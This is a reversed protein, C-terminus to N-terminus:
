DENKYVYKISAGASQSVKNGGKFEIWQGGYSNEDKLNQSTKADKKYVGYIISTLSEGYTVAKVEENPAIVSVEPLLKSIQEAISNEGKGTECSLLVISLCSKDETVNWLESNNKIYDVFGQADIGDNMQEVPYMREQDGHAIYFIQNQKPNDQFNLAAAYLNRQENNQSKPDMKNIVEKGNPDVNKLPNWNCYAYSSIHPYEDSKKDPSLWIGLLSLYYRAGFYDYGTETDREKGTFKYREDYTSSQQNVWLEGYPMYHIYQVAQGQSNTIWNSSGLHDSHYFYIGSSNGLITERKYGNFVSSLMDEGHVGRISSIYPGYSVIPLNTGDTRIYQYDGEMDQYQSETVSVTNLWLTDARDIVNDASVFTGSQNWYDGLRSAIRQSGNYYHKTYGRPTVVMYPNVYLVVDDFYARYSPYGANHQEETMTGTLKYTRNGQADYAYYGCHANGFAAVLQGAENWVHRRFEDKHPLGIHTVQGNMDWRLLMIDEANSSYVMRPRHDYFQSPYGQTYGFIMNAGIETCSKTAVLGSPSYSMSYDYGGLPTSSQVARTLRYQDDYTYTVSYKGGLNGAKNKDQVINTINGVPDYTYTIDQLAINSGNLQRRIPRHHVNEYSLVTTLGNGYAISIPADYENYEMSRIYPITASGDVSRLLGNSYHYNVVEGDPYVIRRMRGFSDYTFRTRFHYANNETPIGIIRESLSVNGMADYEMRETGTVDQVVSLRGVSDYTYYVDNQPYQPYHIHVPRTYDYEYTTQEGRNLQLNTASAIMNGAADYTWRTIGADPHTRQTRHGFGDYTHTTTLGDPDTSQLLQGLPDYKFSTTAGDPAISTTLWGQPSTCQIWPLGNEDTHETVLRKHGLADYGIGYWTDSTIGDAWSMFIPRDMVDYDTQAILDLNHTHYTRMLSDAWVNAYTSTARGFCDRTTRCSVVYRSGRKDFRQVMDGRADCFTRHSPYSMPMCFVTACISLWMLLMVIFLVINTQRMM